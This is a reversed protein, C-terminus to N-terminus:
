WGGWEWRQGRRRVGAGARGGGRRSRGARGLGAPPDAPEPRRSPPPRRRGGPRPPVAHPLPPFFLPSTLHFPLSLFVGTRGTGGNIEGKGRERERVEHLLRLSRVGAEAVRPQGSALAELLAGVGGAAAVADAGAATGYALSSVAAAAQIAIASAGGGGGGGGGGADVEMPTGVAGGEAAAGESLADRLADVLAPAAGAAIFRAKRGRNAIVDNKLRRVAHLRTASDPARLALVLAEASDDGVGALGGPSASPPSRPLTGPTTRPSVM